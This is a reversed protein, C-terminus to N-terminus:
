QIPVHIKISDPILKNDQCASRDRKMFDALETKIRQLTDPMEIPEIDLNPFVQYLTQNSIFKEGDIFDLMENTNRMFPYAHLSRFSVSLDLGHGIWPAVSPRRIYKEGDLLAVLSPTVDFHSVIASFKEPKKLLRSYIVLPVHFRDIQTSIPIEPM